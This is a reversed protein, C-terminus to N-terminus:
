AEKDVVSYKREAASLSRSAFAVTRESSDPRIQTLVGGIGYDSADTSVITPLSPDFMALASSDTILVKIQQFSHQADETWTFTANRLVARMPEVVTAYNQIFKSYCSTLGLFSRLFTADAPAPADRIAVIYDDNPLLGDKTITHGLYTLKEQYFKCKETNLRLGAEQLGYLVAKLRTEYDASDSSYVIIDDLYAQVGPLGQLVISM